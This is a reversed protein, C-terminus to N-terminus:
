VRSREFDIVSHLIETLSHTPKWGIIEGIRTMDPMRRQM